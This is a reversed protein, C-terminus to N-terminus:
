TVQRTGRTPTCALFCCCQEDMRIGSLYDLNRIARAKLLSDRFYGLVGANLPDERQYVVVIKDLCRPLGLDSQSFRNLRPRIPTPTPRTNFHDPKLNLRKNFVNTRTSRNSGNLRNVLIPGLGQFGSRVLVLRSNRQTSKFRVDISRNTSFCFSSNSIPLRKEFQRCSM